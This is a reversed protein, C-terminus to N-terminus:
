FGPDHLVSLEILLNQSNTRRPIDFPHFQFQILSLSRYSNIQIMSLILRPWTRLAPSFTGKVIVLRLPLPPVQVGTLILGDQM